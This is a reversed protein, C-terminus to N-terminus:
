IGAGAHCRYAGIGELVQLHHLPRHTRRPRTATVVPTHERRGWTRGEAVKFRHGSEDEFVLWAGQGAATRKYPAM